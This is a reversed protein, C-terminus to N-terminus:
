RTQIRLTDLYSQVALQLAPTARVVIKNQHSEISSQAVEWSEVGGTSKQIAGVIDTGDFKNQKDPSDGSEVSSGPESATSKIKSLIDGVEYFVLELTDDEASMPNTQSTTTTTTNCGAVLLCLLAMLSFREFTIRFNCKALFM